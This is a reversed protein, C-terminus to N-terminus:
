VWEQEQRPDAMGDATRPIPLIARITFGGREGAGAQLSGGHQTVRTRMGLLGHGAGDTPGPGRGDDSVAVTLCDGTLDVRVTARARPGAHKLVNTLSEQVIRYASLGVGPPVDSGHVSTVLTTPVGAASVSEVLNPLDALTRAPAADATPDDGRRLSAVAARVEALAERSTEAILRLSQEARAPNEAGTMLAGDAQAVIVALSHAIIDHTEAALRGRERETVLRLSQEHETQLLRNRESLGALSEGIARERALQSRGLLYSGACVAFMFGAGLITWTVADVLTGFGTRAAIHAALGLAGVAAMGLAIWGFARSTYRAAAHVAIPVCVSGLGAGTMPALLLQGLAAAAIVCVVLEPASRRALLAAVMVLSLVLGPVTAPEVFQVTYGLWVLLGVILAIVADGAIVHRDYWTLAPVPVPRSM